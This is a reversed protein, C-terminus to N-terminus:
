QPRYNSTIRKQAHILIIYVRYNKYKFDIVIYESCM